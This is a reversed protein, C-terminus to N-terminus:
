LSWISGSALTNMVKAAIFIIACKAQLKRGNNEIKLM